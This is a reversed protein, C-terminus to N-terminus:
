FVFVFTNLGLRIQLDCVLSMNSNKLYSEVRRRREEKEGDIERLSERGDHWVVPRGLEDVAVGGTPAWKGGLTSHSDKYTPPEQLHPTSDCLWLVSVVTQVGGASCWCNMSTYRHLFQTILLSAFNKQKLLFEGSVAPQKENPQRSQAPRLRWAPRVCLFHCFTMLLFILFFVFFVFFCYYYHILSITQLEM